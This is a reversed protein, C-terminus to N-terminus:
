RRSNVKALLDITAKNIYAKSLNRQDYPFSFDVEREFKGGILGTPSDDFMIDNLGAWIAASSDWTSIIPVYQRLLSIENPGDVMGLLHIKKGRLVAKTLTLTQELQEIIKWRALFRQLKNAKEVGFANPCALISIGIYDVEAASCAWEFSTLLDRLNGTEAQPVYFTGFGAGRFKPALEIAADRTKTWAEGPYDSMVIYDADVLTGMDILKDSPYMPRGQKYMEFCSNDLIRYGEPHKPKLQYFSTYIPDHEVLHALLLDSKQERCFHDLYATPSIHAFDM